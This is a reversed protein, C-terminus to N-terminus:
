PRALRQLHYADRWRGQMSAVVAHMLVLRRDVQPRQERSRKAASAGQRYYVGLLEVGIEEATRNRPVPEHGLATIMAEAVTWTSWPNQGTVLRGDVITNDLYMPGEVFQAGHEILQAQLLYPFLQPADKILFLEEANTFGTVRRGEILRRGDTLRVNLLAAPGHCVAGVVGGAQYVSRVIRQVDPDDAFDFMAGKGGVFYVAEYDAPEVQELPLSNEIKRRSQPDNLFAYDAAVLGDDTMMPPKGGRPSAIAVEYGNAVFVYYARALETLEFGAPKDSDGIKPTSTVVALIRGRSDRVGERVFDLGSPRSAPDAVPQASLDFGRVYSYGSLGLLAFVGVVAGAAVGLMKWKSM